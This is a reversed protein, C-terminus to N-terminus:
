ELEKIRINRFWVQHGHDQLGIHGKRTIGFGEWDRFKSKSVLDNWAEGNVPFKTVEAGNLVISGINNRHDIKILYQNWEGAKKSEDKDPGVIGFIAGSVQKLDNFGEDSSYDRIQVEPGTMYPVVFQRDENVGYFVGSNGDVAIKWEMYLEFNEYKQDTMLNNVGQNQDPDPMYLMAGDKVQWQDSISDNLYSHWGNFTKGDFLVTWDKNAEAEKSIKTQASEKIEKKCGALILILMVLIFYRKM